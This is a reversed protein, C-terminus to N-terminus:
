KRMVVEQEASSHCWFTPRDECTACITECGTGTPVFTTSSTAWATFWLHETSQGPRWVNQPSAASGNLLAGRQLCLCPSTELQHPSTENIGLWGRSFCSSQLFCGTGHSQAGTSAWAKHEPQCAHELVGQPSGLMAEPMNQTCLALLRGASLKLAFMPVAVGAQLCHLSLMTSM